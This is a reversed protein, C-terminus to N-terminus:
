RACAVLHEVRKAFEHQMSHDRVFARGCDRAGLLLRDDEAVRVIVEALSEVDGMPATFGLGFSDQLWRAAANDFSIFPAGLGAGEIYTCSPDAQLHPILLADVSAAVHPVWESEFDLSGIEEVSGGVSGPSEGGGLLQLKMGRGSRRRAIEFAKLAHPFGKAALWRGSFAFTVEDPSGSKRLPVTAAMAETVRSDYFMMPRDSYQGYADWAVRGNAQVGRARKIAQRYSRELRVMGVRHRLTLRSPAAQARAWDLRARLDTEATVVLPQQSTELLPLMSRTMPALVVSPRLDEVIRVPHGIEVRCAPDALEVTTRRGPVVSHGGSGQGVVVMEGPWNLAFERFGSLTKASLNVSEGDTEIPEASVIVLLPM